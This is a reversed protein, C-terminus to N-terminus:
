DFPTKEKVGNYSHKKFYNWAEDTETFLTRQKDFNFIVCGLSGNRNKAIRLTAKGEAPRPEVDLPDEDINFERDGYYEPRYVFMVQDADQEIAGSERLDSLRPKNKDRTEVKRSLQCLCIVPIQLEKAMGKMKRSAQSVQQERSQKWDDPSLLQLYDVILIKIGRKRVMGIAKARLELSNINTSDDIFIPLEHLFQDANHLLERESDSMRNGLIKNMAIGSEMARLRGSVQSKPMELSIIGVPVGRRAINYTITLGMATKGMSTAGALIILDSNQFSGIIKDLESFGTLVGSAEKGKDADRISKVIIEGLSEDTRKQLGRVLNFLKIEKEALLELADEGPDYVRELTNNDTEIIQRKIYLQKLIYCYTLIKPDPITNVVLTNLYEINGGDRKLQESVTVEDIPEGKGFLKILSGYILQHQTHYFEDVGIAEIVEPLIKPELIVGGLVYKELTLDHPPLKIDSM